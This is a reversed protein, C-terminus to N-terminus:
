LGPNKEDFFDSIKKMSKMGLPIFADGEKWSRLVLEQGAVKDADILEGHKGNLKVSAPDVIESVFSFRDFQYRKNPVVIFRFEPVEEGKRFVLNDRDRFVVGRECQVKSGDVM